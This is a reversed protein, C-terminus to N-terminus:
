EEPVERYGAHEAEPEAGEEDSGNRGNRMPAMQPARAAGSVNVFALADKGVVEYMRALDGYWEDPLDRLPLPGLRKLIAQPVPPPTVRITVEDLEEGAEWFDTLHEELPESSVRPARNGPTREQRRGGGGRLAAMVQEKSK